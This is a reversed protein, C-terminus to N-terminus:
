CLLADQVISGYPSPIRTALNGAGIRREVRSALSISLLRIRHHAVPRAAGRPDREEAEPRGCERQFRLGSFRPPHPQVCRASNRAPAYPTQDSEAHISTRGRRTPFPTGRFRLPGCWPLSAGCQVRATSPEVGSCPHCATRARDRSPTWRFRTRLRPESTVARGDTAPCCCSPPAASSMPWGSSPCSWSIM